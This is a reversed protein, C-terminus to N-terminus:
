TGIIDNSIDIWTNYIEIIEISVCDAMDIYAGCCGCIIYRLNEVWDECLEFLGIGGYIEGTNLDRYRIQRSIM